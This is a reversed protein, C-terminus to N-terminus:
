VRVKSRLCLGFDGVEDDIVDEIWFEIGPFDSAVRACWANRVIALIARASPDDSTWDGGCIETIFTELFVTNMFAQAVEVSPHRRMRERLSAESESGDKFFILGDIMVVPALIHDLWYALQHLIM